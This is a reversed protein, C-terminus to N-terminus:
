APPTLTVSSGLAQLQRIHNRTKRDKDIRHDAGGANGSRLDRLHRDGRDM